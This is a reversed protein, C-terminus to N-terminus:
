ESKRATNNVPGQGQALAAVALFCQRLSVIPEALPNLLDTKVYSTSSQIVPSYEVVWRGGTFVQRLFITERYNSMFGYMCNLDKMYQIPQALLYRLMTEDTYAESMEHAPVWPVKLEGVIRLQASSTMLISDPTNSYPHGLCKFDAFQLNISQAELIKGVIFGVSHNFLGQLGTEDGILHSEAEHDGSRSTYKIVKNSWRQGQTYGEVFRLFDFWHRLEGVYEIDHLANSKTHNRGQPLPPLAQAAVERVRAQKAPM